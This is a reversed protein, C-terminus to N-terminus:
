IGILAVSLLENLVIIILYRWIDKNKSIVFVPNESSLPLLTHSNRTCLCRSCTMAALQGSNSPLVSVAQLLASRQQKQDVSAAITSQATM